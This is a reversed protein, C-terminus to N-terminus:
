GRLGLGLLVIVLVILVNVRAIWSVSRRSAAADPSARGARPGLVFDHLASLVLALVVLGTKVHFAPARLLWPRLSLIALGSAVLLALAIWGV